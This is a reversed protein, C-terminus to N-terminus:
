ETGEGVQVEPTTNRGSLRPCPPGNPRRTAVQWRWDSGTAAWRKSFMSQVAYVASATLHIAGCRTWWLLKSLMAQVVYVAGCLNCWESQEAYSVGCAHLGHQSTEARDAPVFRRRRVCPNRRSVGLVGFTRTPIPAQTAVGPRDEARGKVGCGM